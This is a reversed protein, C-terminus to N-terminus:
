KTLILSVEPAFASQPITVMGKLIVSDAIKNSRETEKSWFAFQLALEPTILAM